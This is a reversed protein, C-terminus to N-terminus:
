WCRVIITCTQQAGMNSILFLVSWGIQKIQNVYQLCGSRIFCISKMEEDLILDNVKHKWIINCNGFENIDYM